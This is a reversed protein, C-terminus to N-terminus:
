SRAGHNGGRGRRPVWQGTRRSVEGAEVRVQGRSRVRRVMPRTGGGAVARNTRHRRHRQRMALLIQLHHRGVRSPLGLVEGGGTVHPLRAHVRPHHIHAHVDARVGRAPLLRRATRGM